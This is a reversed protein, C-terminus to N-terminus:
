RHRLRQHSRDAVQHHLFLTSVRIYGTSKGFNPGAGPSRSTDVRKKWKEVLSPPLNVESTSETRVDPLDRRVLTCLQGYLQLRRYVCRPGQTKVKYGGNLMWQLLDTHNIVMWSSVSATPMPWKLMEAVELSPVWGNDIPSDLRKDLIRPLWVIQGHRWRCQGRHKWFLPTM